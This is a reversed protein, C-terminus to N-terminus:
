ECPRETFREHSNQSTRVNDGAGAELGAEAEVKSTHDVLDSTGRKRTPKRKRRKVMTNIQFNLGKNLEYDGELFEGGIDIQEVKSGSDLGNGENWTNNDSEVTAIESANEEDSGNSNLASSAVDDSESHGSLRRIRKRRRLAGDEVDNISQGGD